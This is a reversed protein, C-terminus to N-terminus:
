PFLIQPINLLLYICNWLAYLLSACGHKGGRLSQKLLFPYSRIPVLVVFLFVFFSAHHLVERPAYISIDGVAGASM